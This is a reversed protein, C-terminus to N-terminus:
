HKFVIEIDDSNDDVVIKEVFWGILERSIENTAFIEDTTLAAIKTTFQKKINEINALIVELERLRAQHQKQYSIAEEADKECREAIAPSTKPNTAKQLLGRIHDDLKAIHRKTAAVEECKSTSLLEFVSKQTRPNSLYANVRDTLICKVANELYAANINKTKCTKGNRGKHNPCAYTRVLKKNKGGRNSLGSMRSGCAKCEVLGTLIYSPNKNQQPCCLKRSDLVAQVKDFQARSIIAPIATENRM